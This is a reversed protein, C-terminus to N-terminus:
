TELLVLDSYRDSIRMGSHNWRSGWCQDGQTKLTTNPPVSDRATGSIRTFNIFAFVNFNHKYYLNYRIQPSMLAMETYTSRLQFCM